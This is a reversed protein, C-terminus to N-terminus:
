STADVAARVLRGARFAYEIGSWITLVVALDLLRRPVVGVVGPLLYAACSHPVSVDTAPPQPPQIAGARSRALRSPQLTTEVHPM